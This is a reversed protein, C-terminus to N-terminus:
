TPTNKLCGLVMYNSPFRLKLFFDFFDSTCTGGRIVWRRSYMPPKFHHHPVWQPENPLKSPTQCFRFFITKGMTKPHGLHTVKTPSDWFSTWFPWFALKWLFDCFKSKPRQLHHWCTWFIKGSAKSHIQCFGLLTKIKGRDKPPGPLYNQYSLNAKKSKLKQGKQGGKSSGSGCNGMQGVWFDHHFGKKQIKDFVNSIRHFERSFYKPPGASM